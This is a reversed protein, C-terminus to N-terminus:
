VSEDEAPQKTPLLLQFTSQFAFRTRPFGEPYTAILVARSLTRKHMNRSLVVNMMGCHLHNNNKLIFCHSILHSDHWGDFEPKM